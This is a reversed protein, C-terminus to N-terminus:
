SHNQKKRALTYAIGLHLAANPLVPVYSRVFPTQFWVQYRTFLRLPQEKKRLLAYSLGIAVSAILSPRGTNPVKEYDGSANLRFQQLNTFAHMYGLGVGSEIGIGNNLAFRYGLEPYVQIGHQARQQYVYALQLSLLLQHHPHTNLRSGLGFTLGPHLPSHIIGATGSFPLAIANNFASVSIERPLHSKQALAPAAPHLCLFGLLVAWCVNLYVIM